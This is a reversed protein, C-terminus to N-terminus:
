FFIKKGGTGGSSAMDIAGGFGTSPVGSGTPRRKRRMLASDQPSSLDPVFKDDEGAASGERPPSVNIAALRRSKIRTPSEAASHEISSLPVASYEASTEHDASSWAATKDGGGDGDDAGDNSENSVAPEQDDLGRQYVFVTVRRGHVGPLDVKKVCLFSVPFVM